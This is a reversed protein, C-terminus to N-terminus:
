WITTATALRRSRTTMCPTWEQMECSDRDPNPVSVLTAPPTIWVRARGSCKDVPAERTAGSDVPRAVGSSSARARRSRPPILSLLHRARAARRVSRCRAHTSPGSTPRTRAGPGRPRAPSTGRDHALTARSCASNEVCAPRARRRVDGPAGEIRTRVLARRHARRRGRWRRPGPLRRRRPSSTRSTLGRGRVSSQGPQSRRPRRPKERDERRRPAGSIETATMTESMAQRRRETATGGASHHVSPAVRPTSTLTQAIQATRRASTRRRPQSPDARARTRAESGLEPVAGREHRAATQGPRAVLSLRRTVSPTGAELACSPSAEEIPM